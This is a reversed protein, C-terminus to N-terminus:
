GHVMSFLVFNYRVLTEEADNQSGTHRTSTKIMQLINGLCWTSETIIDTGSASATLSRVLQTSMNAKTTANTAFSKGHSAILNCIARLIGSNEFRHITGHSSALLRVFKMVTLTNAMVSNRSPQLRGATVGPSFAARQTSKKPSEILPGAAAIQRLLVALLADSHIIEFVEFHPLRDFLKVLTSIFHLKASHTLKPLRSLQVHVTTTNMGGLRTEGTVSTTTGATSTTGNIGTSQQASLTPTPTPTLNPDPNPGGVEGHGRLRMQQSRLSPTLNGGESEWRARGRKRISITSNRRLKKFPNMKREGNKGDSDESGDEDDENRDNNLGTRTGRKRRPLPTWSDDVVPNPKIHVKISAKAKSATARPRLPIHLDAADTDVHETQAPAGCLKCPSSSKRHRNLGFPSSSNNNGGLPASASSRTRSIISIHEQLNQTVSIFNRVLRVMDVCKNCSQRDEKELAEIFAKAHDVLSDAKQWSTM